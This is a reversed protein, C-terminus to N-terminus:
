AIQGEAQWLREDILSHEEPTLTLLRIRLTDADVNLAEALEFEDQSWLLSDVLKGLPILRRAAAACAAIEQRAQLIPSVDSVDEDGRIIHELEHALTCRMEARTQRKDLLMVGSEPDWWGRGSPLIDFAVLVDQLAAIAGWPSYDKM